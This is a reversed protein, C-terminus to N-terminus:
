AEANTLMTPSEPSVTPLNSDKLAYAKGDLICAKQNFDITDLGFPSKMKWEPHRLRMQAELKCQIITIAKHMRATLMRNKMGLPVQGEATIPLFGECPDDGYTDMALTALPVLNIGYGDERTAM